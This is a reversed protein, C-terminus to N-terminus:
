NVTEPSKGVFAVDYAVGELTYTGTQQKDYATYTALTFVPLTLTRNSAYGPPLTGTFRFRVNRCNVGIKRKSGSVSASPNGPIIPGTGGTNAVGNLTLSLTEPQVSVNFPINADTVYIEDIFNGASM